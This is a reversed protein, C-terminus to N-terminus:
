LSLKGGCFRRDPRSLRLKNVAYLNPSKCNDRHCPIDRSQLTNAAPAQGPDQKPLSALGPMPHSIQFEMADGAGEGRLRGQM